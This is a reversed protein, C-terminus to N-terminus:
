TSYVQNRGNEKAKYLASDARKFIDEPSSDNNMFVALGICITVRVIQEGSVTIEESAVTERVREAWIKAEDLVTDPLLIMFEEGGWRSIIDTDRLSGSLVSVVSKLVIDGSLHGYNDNIVKFHDLDVIALALTNNNRQCRHVESNLVVNGHRRNYVNTLQDHTSEQKLAEILRTQESINRIVATMEISHNFRITSITVEIPIEKGDKRLGFISSRPQM